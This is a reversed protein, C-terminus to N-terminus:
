KWNPPCTLVTGDSLTLNEPYLSLKLHSEKMKYSFDVQKRFIESARGIPIVLGIQKGPFITRVARVAPLLDTDGSIIIAKDYRDQFALQLLRVAINVDTQKEEFVPFNKTCLKCKVSKRKFEGYIVAVGENEQAKIFRKHREVKGADWFALTTFYEIEAIFDGKDRVYCGCLKKLSTWKYKCYRDHDPADELHDLAHYLNFGDVFFLIKAM